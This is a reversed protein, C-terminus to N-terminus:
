ARVCRLSSGGGRHDGYQQGDSFRQAWAGGYNGPSSSWYWESDGSGIENFTGKLKGCYRNEWIVNLESKSPARWDKHGHADLKAAYKQAEDFTHTLRDTRLWRRAAADVPTTYLPKGEYYGALITGDLMKDGIKPTTTIENM